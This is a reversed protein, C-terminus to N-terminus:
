KGLFYGKVKKGIALSATLGPSDIGVCHYANEFERDGELVFDKSKLKPQIGAQFPHLDEERLAPLIWSIKELFDKATRTLKYDEEHEPNEDYFPGVTIRGDMRRTTHVGTTHGESGDPLTYTVPAPYIHRFTKLKERNQRFFMAEGKVPFIQWDNEPNIMQAVKDAYVGAANILIDVLIQEQREGEVETTVAFQGNKREVAVVKTKTVLAVGKGTAISELTHLYAASDIIGSTPVHLGAYAHVNPEMSQVEDADIFRVGMVENQEARKKLSLLNKVEEESQAVMLKGVMRYPITHKQCFEQLLINGEVCLKAKLSEPKYYIGSHIVESSRSSAHEGCRSEKEVLFIENVMDATEREM